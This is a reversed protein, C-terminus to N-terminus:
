HVAQFCDLGIPVEANRPKLTIARAKIADLSGGDGGGFKSRTGAIGISHGRVLGVVSQSGAFRLKGETSEFPLRANGLRSYRRDYAGLRVM